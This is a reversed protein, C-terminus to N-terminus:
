CFRGFGAMWRGGSKNMRPRSAAMYRDPNYDPGPLPQEAEPLASTAIQAALKPYNPRVVDLMALSGVLIDLAENRGHEEFTQVAMGFRYKTVVRESVMQRCFELDVTQPVHIYGPGPELLNLRSYIAAKATNVKLLLILQKRSRTVWPTGYGAVGKTAFVRRPRCRKVFAHVTSSKHGTDIGVAVPSLQAGSAHDFKQQIFQDVEDWLSWREINGPFSRHAVVWLEEGMGAGVIGAEIRDAQVDCFGVLIVCGIPLTIIPDGGAPNPMGYPERRSYIAEPAPGAQSGSEWAEALFTNSWSKIAEPGRKKADLFNVAFQHLRGRFGKQAKFLTNLGNLWYGRKGNFKATARWEGNRVMEERQRDNLHAKCHACELWATEPHGDDWRIQYWELVQHRRCHPCPVFWKQYDSLAMESEIRSAGKITPSSASIAFANYFSATRMNALSMPDGEAGASVPFRDVEDFLVGRIPRSALSAPSNAGAGTYHGGKFTKHLITNNSDRTRVDRVAGRLVPTDRLMTALRDKSFAEAMELTPDVRLLPCPDHSVHYGLLNLMLETKGLQSAWQIAVSEVGPSHVSDMPAIQYPLSRWKGAKANAEPSLERFRDAWQSVTLKPPPRMIDCHRAWIVQLGVKTQLPELTSV